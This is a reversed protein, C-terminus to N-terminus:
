NNLNPVISLVKIEFENNLFNSYELLDLKSDNITIDITGTMLSHNASVVGLELRKGYTERTKSMIDLESPHKGNYKVEMKYISRRSNINPKTLNSVLNSLDDLRKLVTDEFTGVEVKSFLNLTDLVRFIPNDVKPNSISELVAKKLNPKLTEVGYMDDNYFITRETSIDFPLKTGNEVLSIVPKRSAHRIALEYMVNPNLETLNAIVLESELLLKIIQNTISGSESITHAVKVDYKLDEEMVPKIVSSILGEAKRRTESNVEGLPSIVFCIKNQKKPHVDSTPEM